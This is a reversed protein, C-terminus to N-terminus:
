TGKRLRVLIKKEYRADIVRGQINKANLYEIVKAVRKLKLEYNDQGLIVRFSSESLLLEFGLKPNFYIESLLPRSLPGTLPLQSSLLLADERLGADDLFKRGRLLPVDPLLKESIKPLLNGESSIPYRDGRDSIFVLEVEQLGLDIELKNPFVRRVRAEQVWPEKKIKVMIDRINIQWLLQKQFPLLDAEVEKKFYSFYAQTEQNLSNIQIKSIGFHPSHLGWVIFTGFALTLAVVVLAQIPFKVKNLAKM